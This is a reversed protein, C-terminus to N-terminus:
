AEEFKEERVRECMEKLKQGAWEFDSLDLYVQGSLRTWWQNHFFYIAMFTKHEDVLFTEMWNIARMGLGPDLTTLGPIKTPNATLPLRVNVLCCDTLTKTSNDMVETGLIKAVLQGGQQALKTNYDIIAEEGGCVAHRWKLSDPLVLYNTSDITGVFEFNQVFQSNTNGFGLPNALGVAANGRPVFGHSTPLTSRMLHQNREPVYLVACGRPVYLWKHCNSVFFDPDLARLDIHIHGIGHAGDILSLVREEQCIATLSEFPMRVGPLSSVTDFIAIRPTKGEARSAKITDRLLDLVSADEMPFQLRMERGKVIDHNAECVYNVTKGCAGYITSFYLIEDKGDRDWVLNTLVTNIGHTANPVYVVTPIPANLVKAVAERSVDLAKPYDYRIFPDPRAEMADMYKRQKEQVARPFTGFSGHNLNKFSPDFLFHKLMEKGFPTRKDTPTSDVTQNNGM